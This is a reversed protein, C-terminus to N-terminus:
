STHLLVLTKKKFLIKHPFRGDIVLIRFYLFYILYRSIGRYANSNDPNHRRIEVNAKIEEPLNFFTEMYNKELKADYGPIDEVYFFGFEKM